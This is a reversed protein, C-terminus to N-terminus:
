WIQPIKAKIKESIIIKKTRNEKEEGGLIWINKQYQGYTRLCWDKKKFFCDKVKETIWIPIIHILRNKLGSVRQWTWNVPLDM